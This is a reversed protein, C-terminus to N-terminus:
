YLEGSVNTQVPGIASVDNPQAAGAALRHLLPFYGVRGLCQRRPNTFQLLAKAPPGHRHGQLLRTAGHDAPPFDSM